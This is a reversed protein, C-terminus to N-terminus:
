TASVLKRTRRAKMVLSKIVAFFVEAVLKTKSCSFTFAIGVGKFGHLFARASAIESGLTSSELGVAAIAPVLSSGM